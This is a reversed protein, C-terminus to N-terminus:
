VQIAQAKLSHVAGPIEIPLKCRQDIIPEPAPQALTCAHLFRYCKFPLWVRFHHSQLKCAHPGAKLLASVSCLTTMAASHIPLVRIRSKCIELQSCREACKAHLRNPVIECWSCNCSLSRGLRHMLTAQAM